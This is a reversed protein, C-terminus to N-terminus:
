PGDPFIVSHWPHHELHRSRLLLRSLSFGLTATLSPLRVPIALRLLEPRPRRELRRWRNCCLLRLSDRNQGSCFSLHEANDMESQQTSCKSYRFHEDSETRQIESDIRTPPQTTRISSSFRAFGVISPDCPSPASTVPISAGPVSPASLGFNM